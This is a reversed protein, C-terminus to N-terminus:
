PPAATPALTPPHTTLANSLAHLARARHHRELAVSLVDATPKIAGTGASRHPLLLRQTYCHKHTHQTVHTNHQPHRSTRGRANKPKTGTPTTQNGADIRKKVNSAAGRGEIRVLLKPSGEGNPLRVGFGGVNSCTPDLARAGRACLITCM